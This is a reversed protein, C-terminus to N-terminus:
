DRGRCRWSSTPERAPSIPAPCRSQAHRFARSSPPVTPMSRLNRWRHPEVMLGDTFSHIFLQHGNLLGIFMQSFAPPGDCASICCATWIPRVASSCAACRRALRFSCRSASAAFCLWSIAGKWSVCAWCVARSSVSPRRAAACAPCLWPWWPTLGAPVPPHPATGGSTFALWARLRRVLNM